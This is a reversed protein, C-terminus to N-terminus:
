LLSTFKYQPFLKQRFWTNCKYDNKAQPTGCQFSLRGRRAMYPIVLPSLTGSTQNYPMFLFIKRGIHFEGLWFIVVLAVNPRPLYQGWM